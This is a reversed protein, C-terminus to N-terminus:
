AIEAEHRAVAERIRELDRALQARLADADAFDRIDRLRELFELEVPRGYLTEAFDLVHVEVKRALEGFTPNPGLSVAATHRQADIVARGAYVGDAPLLTAVGGLNATPYGLDRGRGAGAVVTGAVAYPRGLMAAAVTVDGTSLARRIASSSVLKGGVTVPPVVDLVLGVGDCLERLVGVDGSRDKGFYFNPGEVLGRAALEGRVVQEFFERPTLNLFERSTPYVVASDVGLGELLTLKQELTSLRPPVADPRLIEVPPPDFTLVVAPVEAGRAHRVLAAIMKQHGRHVGDFNGIAVFGGRYASPETFGTLHKM